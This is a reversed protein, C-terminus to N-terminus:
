DLWISEQYKNNRYVNLPRMRAGYEKEFRLKDHTFIDNLDSSANIDPNSLWSPIRLAIKESSLPNSYNLIYDIQKSIWDIPIYNNDYDPSGISVFLGEKPLINIELAAYHLNYDKPENWLLAKTKTGKKFITDFVIVLGSKNNPDNMSISFKNKSTCLNYNYNLVKMYNLVIDIIEKNQTHTFSQLVVHIERGRDINYIIDAKQTKMLAYIEYIAMIGLLFTKGGLRGMSIYAQSIAKTSRINTALLTETTHKDTSGYSVAGRDLCISRMDCPSLTLNENYLRGRYICILISRQWNSLNLLLKEKIFTLIDDVAYTKQQNNEQVHSKLPLEIKLNNREPYNTSESIDSEITARWGVNNYEDCIKVIIDNLTEEQFPFYFPKSLDSQILQRDIKEIIDRAKADVFTARQSSINQPAIAMHTELHVKLTGNTVGTM